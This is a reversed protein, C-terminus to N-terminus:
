ADGNDVVLELVSSASAAEIILATPVAGSPGDFRLTVTGGAPLYRRDNVGTAISDGEFAPLSVTTADYVLRWAAADGTGEAGTAWVPGITLSYGGDLYNPLLIQTADTATADLTFQLTQGLRATTGSGDLDNLDYSTDGDAM